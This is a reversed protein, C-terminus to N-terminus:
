ARNATNAYATGAGVSINATAQVATGNAGKTM